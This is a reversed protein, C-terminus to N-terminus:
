SNNNRLCHLATKKCPEHYCVIGLLRPLLRSLSNPLWCPDHLKNYYFKFFSIYKRITQKDNFYNGYCGIIKADKGIKTKIEPKNKFQINNM